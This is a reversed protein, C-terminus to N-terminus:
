QTVAPVFSARPLVTVYVTTTALTVATSTTNSAQFTVTNAASVWASFTLGATSTSVGFIAYDGVAAGSVALTQLAPSTATVSATSMVTNSSLLGATPAAIATLESQLAASNMAYYPSVAGFKQGGFLTAGLLGGLVLAVVAVYVYYKNM